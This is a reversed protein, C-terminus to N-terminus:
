KIENTIKLVTGDNSGVYFMQNEDMLIALIQEGHQQSQEWSQGEDYSIFLGDQYIAGMKDRYQIIQPVNNQFLTISQWDVGQAGSVMLGSAETGVFLRNALSGVITLVPANNMPFSLEEWSRGNNRSVFVGSETGAFVTDGESDQALCNIERDLLGFCWSEWTHGRNMSRFIGDAVTGVLLAGDRAFLLSSVVPAPQPLMSNQWHTGGDNSYLIGGAVGAVVFGDEVFHPSPLIAFTPIPQSSQLTQYADHWREGGDRSIQVGQQSAAFITQAGAYALAYIPNIVEKHSM